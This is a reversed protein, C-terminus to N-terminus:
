PVPTSWVAWEGSFHAVDVTVTVLTGEAFQPLEEDGLRVVTEAIGYGWNELTAVRTGQVAVHVFGPSNSVAHLEQNASWALTRSVPRDPDLPDSTMLFEADTRIYEDLSPLTAPRPPLRYEEFPVRQMVALAFTGREPVPLDVGGPRTGDKVAAVFTLPEGPVAGYGALLEPGPRWTTGGDPGCSIGVFEAHGAVRVELWMRPDCRTAFVLDLNSVVTVSLETQPLEAVGTGIVRAGAQYEPFGDITGMTAVPASDPAPTGPLLAVGVATAVGVAVAATAVGVARRRRASAIRRRVETVRDTRVTSPVVASRERMLEGLDINM